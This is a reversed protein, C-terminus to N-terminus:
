WLYTLRLWYTHATYPQYLYGSYITSTGVNLTNITIPNLSFDNVAYDEYWYAIGAAINARLYYQLDVRTGTLRNILPALQRLAAPPTFATSNSPLGYVYTAKGDSLDYSLRIDTRPLTRLLDIRATVTAVTDNSDVWWDGRPDTFTAPASTRSYQNATYKDRAYEAGLSVTDAPMLEFGVSFTKNRNDRLGFGSNEYDDHGTGISGNLNLWGAPTITLIGTVRTRDRDAIDFHRMDPQEGVEELLHEDFGSGTRQSAEYKLRLTLYRNGISDLTVRFTDEATEEFIRFTREARDHSYGLGFAVYPLPSFSADLDATHRTLSLPETEWLATGVAWDGVLAVTEFHPTKNAYDYYRYRANLWVGDAPRSNLGYVMSVIDGRAEASSRELPPAVLASNITPAVLPDNQDARGISIAATARSKAPLRYGGDVVFSVLSNSPSTVALGKSPGGSIDTSRLPNDFQITPLRNDFWSGRMGVSLLGKSNAYEMVAKVDTTRTDTPIGLEQTIGNGPSNLLGFNQMHLGDRLSNWVEIKFDVDRSATYTMDFMAVDRRSKMEFPIATTIANSLTLTGAQIRQQISDDVGLVGDGRDTQLSATRESIFLPIQTWVFKTKLRGTAEFEGLFSQDEYGVNNAASFFAWTDTIKGWRFRDVLGGQSLDRYRNFRAEDGKVSDGRFGFDVQGLKPGSAPAAPAQAQTTSTSAATGATQTQQGSQGAAPGPFALLLAGILGWTSIRM